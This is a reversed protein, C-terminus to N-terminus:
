KDYHVHKVKFVVYEYRTMHKDRNTVDRLGRHKVGTIIGTKGTKLCTIKWGVLEDLNNTMRGDSHYGVGHGVRDLYMLKGTEMNEVKYCKHKSEMNMWPHSMMKTSSDVMNDMSGVLDDAFVASSLSLGVLSLILTSVYRRNM